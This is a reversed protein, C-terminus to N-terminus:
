IRSSDTVGTAMAPTLSTRDPISESRARARASFATFADSAESTSFINRLKESVAAGGATGRLTAGHPPDGFGPAVLEDEGFVLPIGAFDQVQLGSLGERELVVLPLVLRQHNELAFHREGDLDVPLHPVDKEPRAFRVPDPGPDAMPQGGLRGHVEDLDGRGLQVVDHAEFVAIAAFSRFLRSSISERLTPVGGPWMAESLRASVTAM